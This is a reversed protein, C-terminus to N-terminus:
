SCYIPGCVFLDTQRGQTVGVYFRWLLPTKVQPSTLLSFQHLTSSMTTAITGDWLLKNNWFNPLHLWLKGKHQSHVPGQCPTWNCVRYPIFCLFYPASSLLLLLCPATPHFSYTQCYHHFLVWVLSLGIRTRVRLSILEDRLCHINSHRSARERRGVVCSHGGCRSM